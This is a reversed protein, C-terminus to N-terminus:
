HGSVGQKRCKKAAVILRAKKNYGMLPTSQLPKIYEIAWASAIFSGCGLIM